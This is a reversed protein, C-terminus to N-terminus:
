AAVNEAVDRLFRARAEDMWAVTDTEQDAQLDAWWHLADRVSFRECAFPSCESSGATYHMLEGNRYGIGEVLGNQHQFEQIIECARACLTCSTKTQTKMIEGREFLEKIGWM